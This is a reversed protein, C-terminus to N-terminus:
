DTWGALWSGVALGNAANPNVRLVAYALFTFWQAMDKVCFEPIVCLTKKQAKYAEEAGSHKQLIPPFLCLAFLCTFLSHFINTKVMLPYVLFSFGYGAM